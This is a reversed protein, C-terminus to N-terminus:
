VAEINTIPTTGRHETVEDVVVAFRGPEGVALTPLTALPLRTFDGSLRSPEADGAPRTMGPKRTLYSGDPALELIIQTGGSTRIDFTGTSAPTISESMCLSHAARVAYAAWM